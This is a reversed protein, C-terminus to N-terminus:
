NNKKPKYLYLKSDASIEYIGLPTTVAGVFTHNNFVNLKVLSDFFDPDINSPLLFYSDDLEDKVSFLMAEINMNHMTYYWYTGPSKADFIYVFLPINIGILKDGKKFEGKKLLEHTNEIFTKTNIDVRIHKLKSIGNVEYNQSIIGSHPNNYNGLFCCLFYSWVFIVFLLPLIFHLKYDFKSFTSRITSMIISLAFWPMIHHYALFVIPINTGVAMIFPLSFLFIAVPVTRTLTIKQNKTSKISSFLTIVAQLLLIVLFITIFTRLDKPKYLQLKIISDFFLYIGSSFLIISFLKNFNIKKTELVWFGSIVLFISISFYILILFINLLISTYYNDLIGGINHGGSHVSFFLAQKFSSWWSVPLQFLVFYFVLGIVFGM